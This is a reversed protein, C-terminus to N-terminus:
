PDAEKEAELLRRLRELARVHRSKVGSETLGLVAATDSTSLQELHRLVLIERDHAVLQALAAHIRAQMEERLFIASPSEDAAALRAVLELASDEPLALVGPEEKSVTRKKAQIHRRHLEILREWALQRLWPYFPLPRLRLYDSLRSSAEIMAEQVVDSADIRAALRRDMRLAVMRRLRNRYRVLLRERAAADGHSAKELLENTRSDESVTV